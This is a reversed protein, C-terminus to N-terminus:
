ELGLFETLLTIYGQMIHVPIEKYGEWSTDQLLTWGNEKAMKEAHRVTDDYNKNTISAEAGFKKIANLRTLSSGKPLYVVSECDFKEATWAVARRTPNTLRM